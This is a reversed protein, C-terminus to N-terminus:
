KLSRAINLATSATGPGALVYTIGDKVWMLMYQTTSEQFDQLIIVGEVGDVNIEKYTASSMPLPVVFTTSWDVRQAFEAAEEPNMGLLQLYAEGFESLNLGPPADITPSPIQSLTTCGLMQPFAPSDPDYGSERIPEIDFKCEGYQATISDPIDLKVTAGNVLAPIQIDARGIEDLIAQIRSTDVVFEARGGPQVELSELPRTMGTPLRVAFGLRESAEAEDTVFYAEGRDEIQLNQTLLSQLQTSSGLQQQLAGPDVEVIAFQEVRFLGLFSNAIARVPAFTMSIVLVAVIALGIWVPRAKRSFLQNWMSSVEMEHKQATLKARAATAPPHGLNTEPALLSLHKEILRSSAQLVAYREQCLACSDLHTKVKRRAQDDVENDLFAKIEGDSLHM